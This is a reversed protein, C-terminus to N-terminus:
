THMTALQRPVFPQWSRTSATAVPTTPRLVDWGRVQTVTRRAQEESRAEAQIIGELEEGALMKEQAEAM